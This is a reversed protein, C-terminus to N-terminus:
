QRWRRLEVSPACRALTASASRWTAWSTSARWCTAQPARERSLRACDSVRVHRGVCWTGRAWLDRRACAREGLGAVESVNACRPPPGHPLARGRPDARWWGVLPNACTDAGPPAPPAPPPPPPPPASARARRVQVGYSLVLAQLLSTRIHQSMGSAHLLPVGELLQMVLVRETSLEQYAAPVIVQLGLPAAARVPPAQTLGPPAPLRAPARPQTSVHRLDALDEERAHRQLSERVAAM